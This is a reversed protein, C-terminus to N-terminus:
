RASGLVRAFDNLQLALSARVHTSPDSLLLRVAPIVHEEIAEGSYLASVGALQSCAAARVEGELDRLLACYVGLSDVETSSTEAHGGEVLSPALRGYASAVM